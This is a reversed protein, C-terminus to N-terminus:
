EVATREHLRVLGAVRRVRRTCPWHQQGHLCHTTSTFTFAVGGIRGGRSRGSRGGATGRRTVEGVLVM